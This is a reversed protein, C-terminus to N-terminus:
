LKNNLISKKVFEIMIIGDVDNNYFHNNDDDGDCTDNNDNDDGCSQCLSSISQLVTGTCIISHQKTLLFNDAYWHSKSLHLISPLSSCFLFHLYISHAFSLFVCWLNSYFHLCITPEIQGYIQNRM